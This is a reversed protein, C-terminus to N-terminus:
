LALTNERGRLIDDAIQKLEQQFIKQEVPRVWKITELADEPFSQLIEFIVIPDVGAEKNKAETLIQIWDFRYHKAILWLDVIDKAEYRFIASLKNSLINQWSDLTGLIADQMLEGYHEAVDNVFDIKLEITESKLTKVLFFQTFHEYKQLRPYDITFLHAEQAEEFHRLLTQAHAPYQVQRNM